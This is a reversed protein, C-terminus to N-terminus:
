HVRAPAELPARAALYAFALAKRDVKAMANRPITDIWVIRITIAPAAAHVAQKLTGEDLGEFRVVALCTSDSGNADAMTFVAADAVGTCGRAADELPHPLFKIGGINIVEDARGSVCLVGDATLRGVDGPYFWGNRFVKASAELDDIYGGVVHAGRIRIEGQVSHTVPQDMDDVIQVEQDPYVVGVADPANELVHHLGVAVGSAETSGYSVVLEGALRSLTREVLRKSVPSGGVGVRLDPMRSFDAPLRDLLAALHGTAMTIYTPNLSALQSALPQDPSHCVFAGGGAWTYLAAVLGFITDSGILTMTRLDPTRRAVLYMKSQAHLSEWSLAVAKRTGTTGSSFMLRAMSSPKRRIPELIPRPALLTKNFWAQSVHLFAHRGEYPTDTILITPEREPAVAMSSVGLRALALLVLWHAYPNSVAVAALTDAECFFADRFRAAVRDIDADFEAYSVVGARSVFAPKRPDYRAQFTILRDYM